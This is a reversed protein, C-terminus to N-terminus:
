ALWEEIPKATRRFDRTPLHVTGWAESRPRMLERYAALEIALMGYWKGGFNFMDPLPSEELRGPWHYVFLFLASFGAGFIDQWQRLDDIDERTVWNQLSPARGSAAALKRGKVDVLLNKGEPRYVVFDFSKLKAGAFLAKKAEDVAIYPLGKRRLFDEFAAEYHAVPKTRPGM